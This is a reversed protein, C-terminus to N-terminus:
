ERRQRLRLLDARPQQQQRWLYTMVGITPLGLVVAAIGIRVLGTEIM